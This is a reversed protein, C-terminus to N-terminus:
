VLLVKRFFLLFLLVSCCNSAIREEYAHTITLSILDRVHSDYISYYQNRGIKKSKVLNNNRLISLQHSIASQSENIRNELETVNRAEKILLYLIKFRIKNKLISFLGISSQLINEDLEEEFLLLQPM